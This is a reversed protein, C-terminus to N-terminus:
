LKELLDENEKPLVFNKLTTTDFQIRDDHFVEQPTKGLMIQTIAFYFINEAFKLGENSGELYGERRANILQDSVNDNVNDSPKIDPREQHDSHDFTPLGSPTGSNDSLSDSIDEDNNKEKKQKKTKGKLEDYAATVSIENNTLAEKLDERDSKEIAKMKEVQRYSTGLMEADKVSQKGHIDETEEAVESKIDKLKNLKQYDNYLNNKDENRRTLQLELAYILGDKRTDFVHRYVPVKDIGAKIAAAIRHHGDLCVEGTEEEDLFKGLEICQSKDFGKLEIRQAIENVRKLDLPFLNQFEVDLKIEEPPIEEFTTKNPKVSTENNLAKLASSFGENNTKNKSIDNFNIKKSPM